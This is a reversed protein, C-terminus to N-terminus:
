ASLWIQCKELLQTSKWCWFLNMYNSYNCSKGSPVSLFRGAAPSLTKDRTWSYEMHPPAILGTLWLQQAWAGLAQPRCCSSIAILLRHVVIFLLGERAVVPSLWECCCFLGLAVLFLYFKFLTIVNFFLIHSWLLVEKRMKTDKEIWHLQVRCSM